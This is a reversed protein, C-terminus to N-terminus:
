FVIKDYAENLGDTSLIGDREGWVFLAVPSFVNALKVRESITVPQSSLISVVNTRKTCHWNHQSLGRCTSFTPSSYRSCTYQNQLLSNAQYEARCNGNSVPVNESM